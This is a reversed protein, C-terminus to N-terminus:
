GICLPPKGAGVAAIPIQRDQHSPKGKRAALNHTQRKAFGGVMSSLITTADATYAITLRLRLSTKMPPHPWESGFRTNGPLETYFELKCNCDLPTCTGCHTPVEFEWIGRFRRKGLVADDTFVPAENRALYRWGDSCNAALSMGFDGFSRTEAISTWERSRCDVRFIFDSPCPDGTTPYTIKLTCAYWKEIKARDAPTTPEPKWHDLYTFKYNKTAVMGSPDVFNVVNNAVYNYISLGNLRGLPDISTWRGVGPVYLREHAAISGLEMVYYYGVEGVYNFPNVTTGSSARNVGWADYMNTDTVTESSNTLARASGLGDFHYFSHASGRRQSVVRGYLDPEVTYVAQTSGSGDTEMLYSDALPDWIYNVTAM